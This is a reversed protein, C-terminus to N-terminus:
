TNEEKEMPIDLSLLGEQLLLTYAAAPPLTWWETQRLREAQVAAPRYRLVRAPVGGVVAYPPVDKTVVAGAALVAGDGVRVNRLIVVNSGIWVDNGIVVEGDTLARHDPRLRNIRESTTAGSLDHEGPGITVFPAVSCYSGIRAKTVTTFRGFFCCSGIETQEDAFFGKRFTCDKGYSCYIGRRFTLIRFARHAAKKLKATM